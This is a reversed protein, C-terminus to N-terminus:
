SKKIGREGTNSKRVEKCSRNYKLEDRLIKIIETMSEVEDELAQVDSKM